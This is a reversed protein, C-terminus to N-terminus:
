ENKNTRNRLLSFRHSIRSFNSTVFTKALFLNGDNNHNIEKGKNGM